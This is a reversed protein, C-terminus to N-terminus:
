LAKTTNIYIIPCMINNIKTFKINLWYLETLITAVSHFARSRVRAEVGALFFLSKNRARSIRTSIRCAVVQM